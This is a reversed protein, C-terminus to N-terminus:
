HKTQDKTTLSHWLIKLDKYKSLVNLTEEFADRCHIAVPMKYKQALILQSEFVKVDKQTSKAHVAFDLGIGLVM